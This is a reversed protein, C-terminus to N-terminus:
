VTCRCVLLSSAQGHSSEFEGHRYRVSEASNVEVRVPRIGTGDPLHPLNSYPPNGTFRASSGHAVTPKM